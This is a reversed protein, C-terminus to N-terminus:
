LGSARVTAWGATDFCQLSIIEYIRNPLLHTLTETFRSCSDASHRRRSHTEATGKYRGQQPSVEALSLSERKKGEAGEFKAKRRVQKTLCYTAV